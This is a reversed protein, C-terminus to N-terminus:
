GDYQEMYEAETLKAARAAQKAIARMEEPLDNFTRSKKAPQKNRGRESIRTPKPTLPLEGYVEPFREKVAAEGNAAAESFPIGAKQGRSLHLNFLDTAGTHVRYWEDNNDLWAKVAPDFQPKEEPTDLKNIDREIELARETEGEQIAEQQKAQLKEREQERGREEAKRISEEMTRMMERMATEQRALQKQVDIPKQDRFDNVRDFEEQTLYDDPDNGAAIWAEKSMHSPGKKEDEREEPLDENPLDLNLEEQGELAEDMGYAEESM